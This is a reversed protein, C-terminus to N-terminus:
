NLVYSFLKRISKLCGPLHIELITTHSCLLFQNVFYMYDKNSAVIFLIPTWETVSLYKNQENNKWLSLHSFFEAQFFLFLYMSYSQYCLVEFGHFLCLQEHISEALLDVIDYM